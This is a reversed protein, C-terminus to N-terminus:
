GPVAIANHGGTALKRLLLPGADSNQVQSSGAASEMLGAVKCPRLGQLHLQPANSVRCSCLSGALIQWELADNFLLFLSSRCWWHDWGEMFVHSHQLTQQCTCGCRLGPRQRQLKSAGKSSLGSGSSPTGAAVFLRSNEGMPATWLPTAVELYGYM